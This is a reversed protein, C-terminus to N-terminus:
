GGIAPWHYAAARTELERVSGGASALPAPASSCNSSHTNHQTANREPRLQKNKGNHRESGTDLPRVALLSRCTSPAQAGVPYNTPV